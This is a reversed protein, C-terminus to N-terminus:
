IFFHSMDLSPAPTSSSSSSRRWRRRRSKGRRASNATLPRPRLLKGKGEEEWSRSWRCTPTPSAPPLLVSGPKLWPKRRRRRGRRWPISAALVNKNSKQLMVFINSSFYRSDLDERGGGERAQLYSGCSSLGGNSMGGPPPAGGDGGGSGGGSSGPMTQFMNQPNKTIQHGGTQRSFNAFTDGSRQHSSNSRGGGRNEQCTNYTSSSTRQAATVWTTDQSEDQKLFGTMSITKEFFYFM